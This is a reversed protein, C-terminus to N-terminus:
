IKKLAPAELRPAKACPNRKFAGPSSSPNHGFSNEDAGIIGGQGHPRLAGPFYLEVLHISEKDM